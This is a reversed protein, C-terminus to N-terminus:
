LVMVVLRNHACPAPAGGADADKGGGAIVVVHLLRILM